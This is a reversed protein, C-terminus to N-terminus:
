MALLKAPVAITPKIKEWPERWTAASTSVLTPAGLTLTDEM